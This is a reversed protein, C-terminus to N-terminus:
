NQDVKNKEELSKEISKNLDIGSVRSNNNWLPAVEEKSLTEKKEVKIPKQYKSEDIDIREVGTKNQLKNFFNFKM